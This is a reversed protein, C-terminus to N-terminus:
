YEEEVYGYDGLEEVEVEDKSPITMRWHRREEREEKTYRPRWKPMYRQVGDADKFAFSQEMCELGYDGIEESHYEGEPIYSEIEEPPVQLGRIRQVSAGKDVDKVRKSYYRQPEEADGLIRGLSKPQPDYGDSVEEYIGGSMPDHYAGPTAPSGVGQKFIPQSWAQSKSKSGKRKPLWVDEWSAVFKGKYEVAIRKGMYSVIKSDM